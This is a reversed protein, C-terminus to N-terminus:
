ETKPLLLHLRGPLTILIFHSNKLTNGKKNGWCSHTVRGLLAAVHKTCLSHLILPQYGPHAYKVCRNFCASTGESLWLISMVTVLHTWALPTAYHRVGLLLWLYIGSPLTLFPSHKDEREKLSNPFIFLELAEISVNISQFVPTMNSVHDPFIGWLGESNQVWWRFLKCNREM